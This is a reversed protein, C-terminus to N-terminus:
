WMLSNCQAGTFELSFVRTLDCALAMVLLDAFAKHIGAFDEKLMDYPALMPPAPPTCSGGAAPPLAGAMLLRDLQQEIDRVGTLHADVRAADGKGLKKRLDQADAAVVDLVS